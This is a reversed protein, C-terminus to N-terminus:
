LANITEEYEKWSVGLQQALLREVATAIQHENYYPATIEDGPESLDGEKRNREFHEDFRTVADDEVGNWKCILAEVLEHVMICAEMRWDILSSSRIELETKHNKFQWDGVTPYRQKSHPIVKMTVNM